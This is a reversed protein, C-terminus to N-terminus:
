FEDEAEALLAYAHHFSQDLTRTTQDMRRTLDLWLKREFESLTDPDLTMALAAWAKTLQARDDEIQSVQEIGARMM